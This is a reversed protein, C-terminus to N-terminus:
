REEELVKTVLWRVMTQYDYHEPVEDIGVKKLAEVLRIMDRYTPSM